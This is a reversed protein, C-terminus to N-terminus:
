LYLTIVIIYPVFEFNKKGLPIMIYYTVAKDKVCFCLNFRVAFDHTKESNRFSKFGKICRYSLKLVAIIATLFNLPFCWELQLQFSLTIECYTEVKMKNPNTIAEERTIKLHTICQLQCYVFILTGLPYIIHCIM